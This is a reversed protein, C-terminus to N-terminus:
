RGAPNFENAWAPAAELRASLDLTALNDTEDRERLDHGSDITATLVLRPAHSRPVWGRFVLYGSEGARLPVAATRRIIGGEFGEVAVEFPKDIDLPGPNHVVARVSIADGPAIAPLDDALSWTTLTLEYPSAETIEVALRSLNNAPNLDGGALDRAEIWFETM